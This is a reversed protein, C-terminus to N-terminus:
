GIIIIIIRILLGQMSFFMDSGKHIFYAAICM